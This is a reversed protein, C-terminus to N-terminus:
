FLRHDKNNIDFSMKYQNLMADFDSKAYNPVFLKYGLGKFSAINCGLTNIMSNIDSIYRIVTRKSLDFQNALKDATVYGDPNNSISILLDLKQSDLM